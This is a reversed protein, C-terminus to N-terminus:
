NLMSTSKHIAYVPPCGFRTSVCLFLTGRFPQADETPYSFMPALFPRALSFSICLELFVSSSPKFLVEDLGDVEILEAGKRWPEDRNVEWEVVEVLVTEVALGTWSEGRKSLSIAWRRCASTADRASFARSITTSKRALIFCSVGKFRGALFATPAAVVLFCLFEVQYSPNSRGEKLNISKKLVFQKRGRCFIKLVQLLAVTM